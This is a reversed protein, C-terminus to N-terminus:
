VDSGGVLGVATSLALARAIPSWLDPITRRAAVVAASIWLGSCWYCELLEGLRSRLQAGRGPADTWRLAANRPTSTISDSVVLRTLRYAAAADVVLTEV